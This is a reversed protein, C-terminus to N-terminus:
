KLGEARREALYRDVDALTLAHNKQGSATRIAVLKYGRRKLDRHVNTYHRGVTDALAQVTVARTPKPPFTVQSITNTAM